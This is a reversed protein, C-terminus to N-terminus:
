SFVTKIIVILTNCTVPHLCDNTTRDYSNEKIYTGIETQYMHIYRNIYIQEKHIYRPGNPVYTKIYTGIDTQKVIM